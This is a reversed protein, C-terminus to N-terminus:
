WQGLNDVPSTQINRTLFRRAMYREHTEVTSSRSSHFYNDCFQQCISQGLNDSTVSQRKSIQRVFSGRSRKLRTVVAFVTRGIEPRHNDIWWLSVQVTTNYQAIRDILIEASSRRFIKQESNILRYANQRNTCCFIPPNEITRDGIAMTSSLLSSRIRVIARCCVIRLIKCQITKNLFNVQKNVVFLPRKNSQISKDDTDASM